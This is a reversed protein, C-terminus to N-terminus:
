PKGGFSQKLEMLSKQITTVTKNLDELVSDKKARKELDSFYNTLGKLNQVFGVDEQMLKQTIGFTKSEFDSLQTQALKQAQLFPTLEAQTLAELAAGSTGLGRQAFNAAVRNLITENAKLIDQREAPTFKGKAQRRLDGLREKRAKLIEKELAERPSETFTNFVRGLLPLALQALNLYPNANSLLGLLSDLGQAAEGTNGATGDPANSFNFGGEQSPAARQQGATNQILEPSTFAM